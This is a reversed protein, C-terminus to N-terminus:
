GPSSPVTFGPQSFFQLIHLGLDDMLRGFAGGVDRYSLPIRSVLTEVVTFTVRRTMPQTTQRSTVSM